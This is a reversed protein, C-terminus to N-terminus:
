ALLLWKRVLAGCVNQHICPRGAFEEEWTSGLWNGLLSIHFDLDLSLFSSFPFFPNVRCEPWYSNAKQLADARHQM